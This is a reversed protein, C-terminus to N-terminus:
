ECSKRELARLRAARMAEQNPRQVEAAPASPKAGLLQELESRVPVINGDRLVSPPLKQLLREVPQPQLLAAGSQLEDLGAVRARGTGSAMAVAAAYATQCHDYIQFCFGAPYRCDLEHPAHGSMLQAAFGDAETSGFPRFPGRYLMLGDSFISLPVRPKEHGLGSPREAAGRERLEGGVGLRALLASNLAHAQRLLSHAQPRRREAGGEADAPLAAGNLVEALRAAAPSARVLVELEEAELELESLQLAVRPAQQRLQAARKELM